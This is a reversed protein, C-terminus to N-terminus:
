RSCKLLVQRAPAALLQRQWPDPTLGQALLVRPPDLALLLLKRHEM